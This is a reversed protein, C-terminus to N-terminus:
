RNAQARRKRWKVENYRIDQLAGALNQVVGVVANVVEGPKKEKLSVLFGQWEPQWEPFVPREADSSFFLRAWSDIEAVMLRQLQPLVANDKEEGTFDDGEAEIKAIARYTKVKEAINVIKDATARASPIDGAKAESEAIAAQVMDSGNKLGGAAEKALAITRYAGTEERAKAQAFAIRAHAFAKWELDEIKEATAKAGSFDGAEAQVQAIGKYAFRKWFGETAKEGDVFSKAGAIDGAKAQAEAIMWYEMDRTYKDVEGAAVKALAITQLAGSKGEVKVQVEAIQLHSFPGGLKDQIKDATTKALAITQVAGGTDGAEAQARAIRVYVWAKQAAGNIGGAAEKAFAIARFLGDKDGAKAEASVIERYALARHYRDQIRYATAKAGVIDGARIQAETIASYAASREATDQIEAATAEAGAVDGTEVQVVCISRYAAIRYYSKQIGAATAKAEAIDGVKAQIEAVDRFFWDKKEKDEIEGATKRAGSIDGAMAQAVAIERYVRDKNDKSVMEKARQLLKAVDAEVKMELGAIRERVLRNRNQTHVDPNRLAAALYARYWTDAVLEYRGAKDYAMGLNFLASQSYPAFRRADKFHKIALEWQQKGAASVGRGMADRAELPLIDEQALSLATIYITTVICVFAAVALRVSMDLRNNMHVMNGERQSQTISQQDSVSGADFCLPWSTMRRCSLDGSCGSGCEAM